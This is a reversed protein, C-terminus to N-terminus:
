TQPLGTHRLVFKEALGALFGKRPNQGDGLM